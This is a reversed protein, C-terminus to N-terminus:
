SLSAYLWFELSIGAGKWIRKMQIWDRPHWNVQNGGMNHCQYMIVPKGGKNNEGVDLCTKSGQNQFQAM